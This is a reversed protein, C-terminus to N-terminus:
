ISFNSSDGVEVTMDDEGRIESFQFIDFEDNIEFCGIYQKRDILGDGDIDYGSVVRPRTRFSFCFFSAHPSVLLSLVPPWRYRPLSSTAGGM